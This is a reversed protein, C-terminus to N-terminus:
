AEQVVARVLRVGRGRRRRRVGQGVDSEDGRLDQGGLGVVGRAAQKPGRAGRRRTPGARRGPQGGAWRRGGGATGSSSAPAGARTALLLLLRLWGRLRRDTGRVRRARVRTGTTTRRYAVDRILHSTTSTTTVGTGGDARTM